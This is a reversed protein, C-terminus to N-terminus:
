LLEPWTTKEALRMGQEEEKALTWRDTATTELWADGSKRFVQVGLGFVDWFHQELETVTMEPVIELKGVTHKFRFIGLTHSDEIMTTADSAEGPLHRESFFELKLHPFEAQFQRQITRIQKSDSILIKM